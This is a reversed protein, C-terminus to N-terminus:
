LNETDACNTPSFLYGTQGESDSTVATPIGPGWAHFANVSVTVFREKWSSNQHM